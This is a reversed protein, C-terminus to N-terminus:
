FKIGSYTGSIHLYTLCVELTHEAMSYITHLINFSYIVPVGSQFESCLYIINTKYAPIVLVQVGIEAHM